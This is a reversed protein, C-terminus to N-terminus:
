LERTHTTDNTYDCIGSPSKIFILYLYWELYAGLKSATIEIVFTEEM